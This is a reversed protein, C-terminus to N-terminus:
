CYNTQNSWYNYELSRPKIANTTDIAYYFGYGNPDNSDLNVSSGLARPAM